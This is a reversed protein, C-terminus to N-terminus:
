YDVDWIVKITKAALDIQRVVPEIFPLLREREGQVVIVDNAGTEFIRAVQGLVCDQENV